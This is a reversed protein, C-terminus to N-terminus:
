KQKRKWVLYGAFPFWIPAFILLYIGIRGVNQAVWGFANSAGNWSDSWWNSNEDVPQVTKVQEFQISLTSLDALSKLRKYVEQLGARETRIADLRARIEMRESSTRATRISRIYMAESDALSQLRGKSNAIQATVDESSSNQRVVKGMKGIATKCSEFKEAPIKVLLNAVIESGESGSFSDTQVFGGMAVVLKSAEEMSAKADEVEVAIDGNRIIDRQGFYAPPTQSDSGQEAKDEFAPAGSKRASAGDHPAIEPQVYAPMKSSESERTSRFDGPQSSVEPAEVAPEPNEAVNGSSMTPESVTEAMELMRARPQGMWILGLVLMGLGTGFYPMLKMWPFVPKVKQNSRETALRALLEAKGTPEPTEGMVQATARISQLAAIEERVEPSREMMQEVKVMQDPTLNGHVYAVLEENLNM